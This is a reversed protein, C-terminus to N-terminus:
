ARCAAAPPSTPRTTTAASGDGHKGHRRPTPRATGSARHISGHHHLCARSLRAQILLPSPFALHPKLQRVSADLLAANTSVKLLPCRGFLARQALAGVSASSRPLHFCPLHVGPQHRSLFDFASFPLVILSNLHISAPHSIPHPSTSEELWCPPIYHLRASLAFPAVPAPVRTCTCLYGAAPRVPPSTRCQELPAYRQAACPRSLYSPLPDLRRHIINRSELFGM